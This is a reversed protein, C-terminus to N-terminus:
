NAIELPNDVGRVGPTQMAHSAVLERESSKEVVGRLTVRGDRTIIKVNKAKMGLNGDAVVDQRVKATIDRDVANESQDTPLLTGSTDRENNKTNDAAVPETHKETDSKSCGVALAATLLLTATFVKM